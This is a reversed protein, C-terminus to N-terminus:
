SKDNTKKSTKAFFPNRTGNAPGPPSCLSIPFPRKGFGAVRKEVLVERRLCCQLRMTVVVGAYALRIKFGDLLLLSQSKRLLQVFDHAADDGKTTEKLM